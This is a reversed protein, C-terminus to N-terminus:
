ATENGFLVGVDIEKRDPDDLALLDDSLALKPLPTAM